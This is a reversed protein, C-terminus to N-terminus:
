AAAGQGTAPAKDTEAEAKNRGQANTKHLREIASALLLFLEDKGNSLSNAQTSPIRM